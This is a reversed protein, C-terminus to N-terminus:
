ARRTPVDQRPNISLTRNMPGVVCWDLAALGHTDAKLYLIWGMLGDQVLAALGLDGEYL